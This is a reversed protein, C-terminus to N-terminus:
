RAFSAWWFRPRFIPAHLRPKLRHARKDIPNRRWISIINPSQWSEGDQISRGKWWSSLLTEALPTGYFTLFFVFVSV